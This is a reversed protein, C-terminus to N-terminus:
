WWFWLRVTDVIRHTLIWAVQREGADIRASGSMGPRFWPDPPGTLEARVLFQNGESGKTQAVPIVSVVRLAITRDPRSVLVLEGAAGPQVLAADREPVVLTAYLGEIRALRYLRDGKRVPAGQLEQREGEVVVGDFPARAEAQAILEHVRALRAEAQASRAQAVELEALAGAARAKDAEAVHRKLEARSEVEQQRLERVDLRALLSGAKVEDGAAALAEEVRGDFQASLVRTADTAIQGTANVRYDWHAFLSYLVGAAALVATAKWGARSPGLWQQLQELLRDRWRLPWARERAHQLELWPLLQNLTAPLLAKLLVPPEDALAMLLVARPPQSSRSLTLSWLHPSEGLDAQLLAHAPAAHLPPQAGPPPLHLGGEFDLAEDLADEARAIPASGREFKDRHSIAVVQPRSLAAARWGLVVQLAGTRAALGNVLALAAAEFRPEGSVRAAVDALAAWLHPLEDAVSEGAPVVAGGLAAPGPLDAVLQARLLLENLQPREADALAILMWHGALREVRVAAWWLPQGASGRAPCTAYGQQRARQLLTQLEDRWEARLPDDAAGAHALPQPDPEAEQILWVSHARCLRLLSSALLPWWGEDVPAQRLAHLTEIVERASPSGTPVASM